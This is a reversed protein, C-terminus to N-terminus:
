PDVAGSASFDLTLSAGKCGDQNVSTNRLGVQPWQGSPLSLGSLSSTAEPPLTLALDDAVQDVTFDELLCPRQDTSNPADVGRVVVEVDTVSMNTKNSNRLRLDLPVRVGPSMPRTANASIVFSSQNALKTEDSGRGSFTDAGDPRDKADPICAFTNCVFMTWVIVGGVVALVLGIVFHQHVAHKM